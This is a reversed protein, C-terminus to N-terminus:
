IYVWLVTSLKKLVHVFKGEKMGRILTVSPVTYHPVALTMTYGTHRITMLVTLVAWQSGYGEERCEV